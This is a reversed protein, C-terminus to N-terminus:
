DNAEYPYYTLDALSPEHGGLGHDARRHVPGARQEVMERATHTQTGLRHQRRETQSRAVEDGERHQPTTVADSLLRERAGQRHVPRVDDPQEVFELGLIEDLSPTRGLIAAAVDYNEGFGTRLSERLGLACERRNIVLHETREVVGLALHEVVQEQLRGSAAVHAAGKVLAQEQRRNCSSTSSPSAEQREEAGPSLLLRLEHAALTGDGGPM